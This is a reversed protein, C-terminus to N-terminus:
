LFYKSPNLPQNPRDFALLYAYCPTKGCYKQSKNICENETQAADSPNWHLGPSTEKLTVSHSVHAGSTADPYAVLVM